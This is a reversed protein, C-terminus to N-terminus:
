FSTCNYKVNWNDKVVKEVFDAKEYALKSAMMALAGNYKEDLPKINEDLDVRTDLSGLLKPSLEPIPKIKGTFIYIHLLILRCFLIPYFLFFRTCIPTNYIYLTNIQLAIMYPYNGTLANQVFQLLGDNAAILNILAEIANGIKSIPERLVELWHQVMASAFLVVNFKFDRLKEGEEVSCDIFGINKLRSSFLLRILQVFTVEKAKVLMYNRVVLGM